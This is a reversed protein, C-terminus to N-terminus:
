YFYLYKIKAKKKPNMTSKSGNAVSKAGNKAGKKAGNTAAKSQNSAAKSKNPNTTSTSGNTNVQQIAQAARMALLEQRSSCGTAELIRRITPSTEEEVTALSTNSANSTTAKTSLHSVPAKTSTVSSRPAQKLNSNSPHPKCYSKSDPNKSTDRLRCPPANEKNRHHLTFLLAM